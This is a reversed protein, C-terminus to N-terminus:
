QSISDFYRIVPIFSEPVKGSVRLKKKSIFNKVLAKKDSMVKILDREGSIPFFVNDKVFYLRTFQYFKDFKGEDALKDIKKLYKLCLSTKGKYLVNFYGAPGNLSDGKIRIFRYTNNQFSISFSDVLEKNLQLMGGTDSPTLLEDKFIDYKLHIEEFSKGGITLSGPLFDNSFLFQNGNVRFYLNRWIKGNYLVQNEKLTDQQIINKAVPVFLDPAVGSIRSWPLITFFLIVWINFRCM